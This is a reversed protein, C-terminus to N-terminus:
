QQVGSQVLLCQTGIFPNPNPCIPLDIVFPPTRAYSIAGRDDTLKMGVTHYGLRGYLYHFLTPDRGPQNSQDATIIGGDGARIDDGFEGDDNFDYDYRVISGDSDSSEFSYILIEYPHGGSKNVILVPRPHRNYGSPGLVPAAANLPQVIWWGESSASENPRWIVGQPFTITKQLTRFTVGSSNEAVLTSSLDIAPVGDEAPFTETTLRWIKRGGAIMGTLLYDDRWSSKNDQRMGALWASDQPFLEQRDAYGAIQNFERLLADLKAEDDPVFLPNFFNLWDSGALLTHLVMEGYLNRDPLDPADLYNSETGFLPSLRAAPNSLYAIKVKNISSKLHNFASQKYPNVGDFRRTGGGPVLHDYALGPQQYNGFISVNELCWVGPKCRDIESDVPSWFQRFDYNYTEFNSIKLNPFQQIFPRYV